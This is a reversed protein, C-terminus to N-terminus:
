FIYITSRKRIIIFNNTVYGPIKYGITGAYIVWLITIILIYKIPSLMNYIGRKYVIGLILGIIFEPLRFIPIAYITAFSPQPMLLMYGLGPLITLIYCIFILLKLKSKSSQRLM